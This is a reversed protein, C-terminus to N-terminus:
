NLVLRRELDAKMKLMMEVAADYDQIILEEL